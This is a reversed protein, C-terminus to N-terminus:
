TGAKSIKGTPQATFKGDSLKILLSEDAKVQEVSSIIKGDAQRTVISYGRKLVKNPDLAEIGAGSKEIEATKREILSVQKTRLSLFRESLASSKSLFMSAGTRKFLELFHSLKLARERGERGKSRLASVHKEAASEFMALNSGLSSELSMRLGDYQQLACKLVFDTDEWVNRRSLLRVLSDKRTLSHELASEIRSNLHSLEGKIESLSPVVAQGAATPTSARYDACLDAITTDPEHGIGTIVPLRSNRIARGAIETNFPSLDELSGGGRTLVIVDICLMDALGNLTEIAEKIEMEAGIGQVRIDKLYIDILPYKNRSNIIFDKVAAGHSSTILGVARPCTPIARKEDDSFLGEKRLKECLKLFEKKLVGEGSEELATVTLQFKGQKSYIGLKGRATVTIGEEIKFSLNNVLDQKVICSLVSDEDKLNFYAFFSYGLSPRSIEGEVNIHMNGLADNAKKNVESVTLLKEDNM